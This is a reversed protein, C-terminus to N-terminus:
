GMRGRPGLMTKLTQAPQHGTYLNACRVGAMRFCREIAYEHSAVKQDFAERFAKNGADFWIPGDPGEVAYRGRLPLHQELPDVVRLASVTNHQALQAVLGPTEPSLNMYDSILFIRSGTHAIRRAERLGDDLRPRREVNKADHDDQRHVLTNLLRVVARRRRAPRIVEIRSSSFIIGGVQDGGLLGLWALLGTAQAARVRKYAGESGFFLSDGLDCILILPREREEEFLKTHPKQRRATVRWDISRIDDGPQYLRVEAFAM